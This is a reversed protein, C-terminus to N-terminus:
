KKDKRAEGFSVWTKCNPCCIPTDDKLFISYYVHGCKCVIQVVLNKVPNNM